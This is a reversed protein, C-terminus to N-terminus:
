LEGDGSGIELVRYGEPIIFKLYDRSQNYFYSNKCKWQTRSPEISDFYQSTKEKYHRALESEHLM